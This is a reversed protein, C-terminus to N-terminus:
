RSTLISNKKLMETLQHIGDSTGALLAASLIIDLTQFFTIYSPYICNPSFAIFTSLVRFGFLCLLVSTLFSIITAYRFTTKSYEEIQSKVNLITSPVLQLNGISKIETLISVGSTKEELARVVKEAKQKNMSRGSILLQTFRESILSLIPYFALLSGLKVKEYAIFRFNCDGITPIVLLALVIAVALVVLVNITYHSFLKM